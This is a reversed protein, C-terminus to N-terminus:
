SAPRLWAFNGDELEALRHSKALESVLPDEIVLPHPGEFDILLVSAGATRGAEAVKDLTAPIPRAKPNWETLADVGTFCLMATKGDPHQLMVASMEAEREPDPGSLSEDGTAVIPVLLRSLCLESIAHFYDRETGTQEARQLAERLDPSASGDDDAFADNTAGLHRQGPPAGAHPQGPPAGLHTQGPLSSGDHSM